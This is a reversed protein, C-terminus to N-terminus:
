ANMQRNQAEIYTSL